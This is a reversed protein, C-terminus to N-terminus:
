LNAAIRQPLDGIKGFYMFELPIDHAARIKKASELTLSRAATEYPGYTQPLLGAKAAFTKQDYGLIERVRKLRAAIAEPKDEQDELVSAPGWIKPGFTAACSAFQM